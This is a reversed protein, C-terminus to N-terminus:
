TRPEIAIVIHDDGEHIDVLKGVYGSEVFERIVQLNPINGPAVRQAIGLAMGVLGLPLVVEIDARREDTQSVLIRVNRARAGPPVTRARARDSRDLSELLRAGEDPTITKAEVMRLVELRETSIGDTEPPADRM